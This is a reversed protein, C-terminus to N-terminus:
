GAGFWEVSYVCTGLWKDWRHLILAITCGFERGESDPIQNCHAAAEAMRTHAIDHFRVLSYWLRYSNSLCPTHIYLPDVESGCCSM